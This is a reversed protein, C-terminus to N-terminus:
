LFLFLFIITLQQINKLIKKPMTGWEKMEFDQSRCQNLDNKLLNILIYIIKQIV